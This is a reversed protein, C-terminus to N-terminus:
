SLCCPQCRFGVDLFPLDTLKIFPQILARLYSVKGPVWNGDIFRGKAPTVRHLGVPITPHVRFSERITAKLYPLRASSAATIDSESKFSQRIEMVLKEYAASNHTIYYLAASLASSTTEGAATAIVNINDFLEQQDMSQAVLSPFDFEYPKIEKAREELKQRSTSSHIRFGDKTSAPVLFYEFLKHLFGMRCAAEIYTSEILAKYGALVWPHYDGHQLCSLGSGFLMHSLIDSIIFQTWPVINVLGDPGPYHATGSRNRLGTILQSCYSRIMPEQARITREAFAPGVLKRYRLHKDGTAFFLNNDEGTEQMNAIMNKHFTEEQIPNGGYITGIATTTRFSLENPGTRVVDGFKEHLGYLYKCNIGRVIYYVNVLQTAAGLRPGPFRRLPHFFM